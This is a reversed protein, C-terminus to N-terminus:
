VQKLNPLHLEFRSGEGEMTQLVISGKLKDLTEKVIYLGLGSGTKDEAARFFMDFIKEKYEEKIGQGNDEVVIVAKDAFVTADVRIFPSEKSFDHYRIANSILNNMIIKVRGVDSYFGSKEDISVTKKIISANEEYEYQEFVEAMLKHLNCPEPDIELRTNRSYHIIDQILADLRKVSREQLDLCHHIEKIDTELRAVSILGLLSALPTRLDHSASYVFRDLETNLKNLELNQEQMQQTFQHKVISWAVSYSFTTFLAEEVETWTRDRTCDDMGIFGWMTDQIFVPVLIISKIDQSNMLAVEEPLMEVLRGKFVRGTLMIQYWRGIGLEEYLFGQMDENDLQAVIGEQVWEYLQSCRVEGEVERNQFIYIRDSKYGNAVAELALNVGKHFDQEIVLSASAENVAKLLDDRYVLDLRNKEQESVDTAFIIVGSINGDEERVPYFNFEVFKRVGRIELETVFDANDGDLALRYKKIWFEKIVPNSVNKAAHMGKKPTFGYLAEVNDEFRHNFDIYEMNQNVSWISSNKNDLITRLNNEREKLERTREEVKAELEKNVHRQRNILEFIEQQLINMASYLSFNEDEEAVQKLEPTFEEEWTIRGISHIVEEKVRREHALLDMLQVVMGELEEREMNGLTETTFDKTMDVRDYNVTVVQQNDALQYLLQELSSFFEVRELIKPMVMRAIPVLPRVFKPIRVYIITWHHRIHDGMRKLDKRIEQSFDTAQSMETIHIYEQRGISQITRFYSQTMADIDINKLSGVYVSLLISDGLLLHYLQFEPTIYNWEPQNKIPLHKDGIAISSLHLWDVSFFVGKALSQKEAHKAQLFALAEQENEHISYTIKPNLQTAVNAAFRVFHSPSVLAIHALKGEEFMRSIFQTYHKRSANDWDTFRDVVTLLFAGEKIKPHAELCEFIHQTFVRMADLSARGEREVRVIGEPVYQVSSQFKGDASQHILINETPITAV